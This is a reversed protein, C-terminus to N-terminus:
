LLEEDPISDIGVKQIQRVFSGAPSVQIVVSMIGPIEKRIRDNLREIIAASSHITKNGDMEVVCTVYLAGGVSRVRVNYIFSVDKEDDVIQEITDLIERSPAFDLLEKLSGAIIGWVAHLIMIGVMGVGIIDWIHAHGFLLGMGLCLLVMVSSLVDTRHHWANAILAQNKLEKGRSSTYRFLLEKLVISIFTIGMAPLTNIDDQPQIYIVGYLMGIVLTILLVAIMLSAISELKRTGFPKDRTPDQSSVKLMVMVVADIFLDSLSHIGDALVSHAHLLFGFVIKITSLFLNLLGGVLTVILAKKYRVKTHM